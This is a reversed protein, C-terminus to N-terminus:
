RTPLPAPLITWWSRSRMISRAVGDVSSPDQGPLKLAAVLDPRVGEQLRHTCRHSMKVNLGAARCCCRAFRFDPHEDVYTELKERLRRAQARHEQAKDQPLNVHEEAFRLIDSHGVHDRSMSRKRSLVREFASPSHSRAVTRNSRPPVADSRSRREVRSGDVGKVISFGNPVAQQVLPVHSILGVARNKGVIEQLVQLVLDLTGSDNETDLSGFGEDIFITDLRIRGHSM